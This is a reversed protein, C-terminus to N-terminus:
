MPSKKTKIILIFVVVIVATSGVSIILTIEQLGIPYTTNTTTTSTTTTTNTTILTPNLIVTVIVSDSATDGFTDLIELTYNYEGIPLGDINYSISSGDWAEQKQLVGDKLISYVSPHTCNTDWVIYHGTTDVKYIIDEADLIDIEHAINVYGPYHDIGGRSGLIYYFGSGGYDSWLNGVSYGDDWSTDTGDDYANGGINLAFDNGYIRTNESDWLIYLGIGDNRLFANYSICSEPCGGMFVGHGNEQITNGDLYLYPSEFCAIGSDGCNMIISDIISTNMATGIQVGVYGINQITCNYVISDTTENIYMGVESMGSLHCNEIFTGYTREMFIGYQGGQVECNSVGSFNSHGISIASGVAQFEGNYIDVEHCNAVIVQSYDKVDIDLTSLGEFYGIPREAIANGSIEHIWNSPNCGAISIGGSMFSNDIIRCNTAENLWIGKLLNGFTNSEWTCNSIFWTICGVWLNTFTCNEVIGNEINQLDLGIGSDTGSKVFTCNRIIFHVSTEHISICDYSAEIYLDEIIYPSVASGNGAWGESQVTSNFQINGYISFPAHVEIETSQVTVLVIDTTNYTGDCAYIKFEYNGAALGDVNVIVTENFNEWSIATLTEGDRTTVWYSPDDDSIEWTIIHGTTGEVYIIDLPSNVIPVQNEDLTENMISQNGAVNATQIGM